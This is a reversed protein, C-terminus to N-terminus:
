VTKNDLFELGARLAFAIEIQAGYSKEWGKLGYFCDAMLLLSFAKKFAKKDSKLTIKAPNLVEYGLAKLEKEKAAFEAKYNKNGRIRGSIYVKKKLKM